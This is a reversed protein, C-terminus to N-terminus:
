MPTGRVLDFQVEYRQVDYYSGYQGPGRRSTARFEVKTIFVLEYRTSPDVNGTNKGGASYSGGWYYFKIQNGTSYGRWFFKDLLYLKAQITSIPTSVGDIVATQASLYGRVYIHHSIKKIDKVRTEPDKANQSSESAVPKNIEILRNAATERIEAVDIYIINQKGGKPTFELYADM